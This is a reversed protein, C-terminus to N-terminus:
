AAYRPTVVGRYAAYCPTLKAYRPILVGFKPGKYCEKFYCDILFQYIPDETYIIKLFFNKQYNFSLTSEASHPM